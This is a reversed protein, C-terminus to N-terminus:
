ADVRRRRQRTAPGSQCAVPNSPRPAPLQAYRTLPPLWHVSGTFRHRCRRPLCLPFREDFGGVEELVLRRYVMDATIWRASALGATAREWDTPRRTEPLPVSIRGQVGAVDDAVRLDRHLEMLWSDGVFVDDDLFAVWECDFAAGARWGANRAAAPGRGASRLLVLRDRLWGAVTTVNLAPASAGDPRDDVVVVRRPRPGRAQNLSQLTAMLSPRGITPIVVCVDQMSLNAATGIEGGAAARTM